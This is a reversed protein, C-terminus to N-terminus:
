GADKKRWVNVPACHARPNKCSRWDLHEIIGLNRAKAFIGGWARNHPPRPVGVIEHAWVRVDEALFEDRPYDRICQLARVKWDDHVADAHDMAQDMGEDRLERGLSADFLPLDNHRENRM